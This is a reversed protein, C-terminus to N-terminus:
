MYNNNLKKGSFDRDSNMKYKEEELGEYTDIFTDINM